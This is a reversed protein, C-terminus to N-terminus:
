STRFLSLELNGWWSAVATVMDEFLTEMSPMVIFAALIISVVVGIIMDVAFQGRKDSLSNSLTTKIVKFVNMINQLM